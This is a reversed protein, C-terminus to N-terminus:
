RLNPLTAVSVIRKRLDARGGVYDILKRGIPDYFLGNITFDRRLADKQASTFFVKSPRRGDKYAGEGRFAATEVPIGGEVVLIVGFAKGVPITHRFLKQIRGPRASTAVDYDSPRRKLLRDRVCGGAWYAEHGHKRLKKIVRISPDPSSQKM